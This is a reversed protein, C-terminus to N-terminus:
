FDHTKYIELVAQLLKFAMAVLEQPERSGQGLGVTLKMGDTACLLYLLM